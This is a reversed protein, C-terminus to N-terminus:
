ENINRIDLSNDKRTNEDEILEYNGKVILKGSSPNKISVNKVAIDGSASSYELALEADELVCNKFVINKAYCLPQRGKIVCNIFTINESYWALYEGIIISDKVTVDHSHWFADKTDLSSNIISLKNVYQFSYNGKFKLGNIDINKSEFFAYFGSIESNSINIDDCRWFCEESNFINNSFEIHKCERIAKVGDCRCNKIVINNDYWFPARCTDYMKINIYTANTNHWFPYRLFCESDTISINKSEKFSSEGDEVGNITIHDFAVDNSGYFAREKGNTQFSINKM